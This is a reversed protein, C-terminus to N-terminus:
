ENTFVWHGNADRAKRIPTRTGSVHSNDNGYLATVRKVYARTEAYPPVGGNREVAGQGANYAAATLKVDGGFNDLLDKIHRVGGDVNQQVDYPNRVNLDRATAPMLQMLGMAGKRSVARPNYNSEVKIIARVLNPDVGHRAAAAEVAADVDTQSIRRGSAMARLDPSLSPMRSDGASQAPAQQVVANVEEAATRANRYAVGTPRPVPVWRHRTNSWYVLRKPPAGETAAAAAPEPNEKNVFIIRGDPHRVTTIGDGASALVPALVVGAALVIASKHFDLRM